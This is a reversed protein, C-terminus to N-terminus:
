KKLMFIADIQKRFTIEGPAISGNKNVSLMSRSAEAMLRPRRNDQAERVSIVDGLKEGLTEAIFNAKEKAKLLARKLSEKQFQEKDSHDYSVNRVSFGDIASLGKWFAEYQNLERLKFKINTTALYGNKIRKGAKYSWDERFSMRTTQIDKGEISNKTLYTLVAKMTESHQEAVKELEPATTKVVCDWFQLNPKVSVEGVASVSIQPVIDDGNVGLAMFTLALISVILKRM